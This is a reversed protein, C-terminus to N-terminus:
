RRWLRITAFVAGLVAGLVIAALLQGAVHPLHQATAIALGLTAVVRFPRLWSLEATPVGAPIEIGSVLWALGVYVIVTAGLALLTVLRRTM